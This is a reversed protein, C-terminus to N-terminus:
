SETGIVCRMGRAAFDRVNAELNLLEPAWRICTVLGRHTEDVTKVLRGDPSLDWCRVTCDDGVILLYRGGPHFILDQIWSDHGILTKIMRGRTDWLRV